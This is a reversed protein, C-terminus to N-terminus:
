LMEKNKEILMDDMVYKMIEATAVTALVTLIIGILVLFYQFKYEKIYPWYRKLIARLYIEM